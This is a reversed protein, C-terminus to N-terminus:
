VACMYPKLVFIIMANLLVHNTSAAEGVDFTSAIFTQYNSSPNCTESPGSFNHLNNLPVTSVQVIASPRM